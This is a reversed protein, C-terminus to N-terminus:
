PRGSGAGVIQLIAFANTATSLLAALGFAVCIFFSINGMQIGLIDIWAARLGYKAAQSLLVTQISMPIDSEYL